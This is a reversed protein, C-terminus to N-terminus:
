GKRIHEHYDEFSCLISDNVIKSPHAVYVQAIIENGNNIIPVTIRRYHNPVGVYRDLENIQDKTLLYLVCPCKDNISFGINAYVKDPFNAIKNFMLKYGPIYGKKIQIADKVRKQLRGYDMCSAYAAIWFYEDDSKELLYRRYEGETILLTNDFKKNYYYTYAKITQGYSDYVDILKRIYLSGQENDESYDEIKDIM